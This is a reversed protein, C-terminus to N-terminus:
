CSAWTSPLYTGASLQYVLPATQTLVRFRGVTVWIVGLPTEARGQNPERNCRTAAQRAPISGAWARFAGSVLQSRSLVTPVAGPQVTLAATLMM